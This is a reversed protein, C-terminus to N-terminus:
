GKRACAAQAFGVQQIGPSLTVDQYPGLGQSGGVQAEWLMVQKDWGGSALQRSDPSFSVTEM